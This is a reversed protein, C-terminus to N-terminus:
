PSHCGRVRRQLAVNYDYMPTHMAVHKGMAIARIIDAAKVIGVLKDGSLVPVREIENTIMVEAMKELFMKTLPSSRSVPTLSLSPDPKCKPRGFHSALILKAKQQRAYRITPLAERIRTDDRVDSSETLPVNLDVRIFVRKNQIPLSDIPSPNM